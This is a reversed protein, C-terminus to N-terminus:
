RGHGNSASGISSLLLEVIFIAVFVLNFNNGLPHAWNVLCALGYAVALKGGLVLTIVLLIVTVYMLGTFVTEKNM